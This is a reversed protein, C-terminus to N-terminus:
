TQQNEPTRGARLAAAVISTRLARSLRVLHSQDTNVRGKGANPPVRPPPHRAAAVAVMAATGIADADMPDAGDALAQRHATAHVRNDLHLALRSLGDRIATTRRILHLDIDFASRWSLSVTYRTDDAVLLRFLPRLRILAVASSLRPGLLPLLYGGTVLVSATAVLAPAVRTSLVDWDHGTWRAAVAALKAAGFAINFLWGAALSRLGRRTWGTVQRTWRWSLTATTVAATMHAVLYLTIMERIFPTTAYYTDLDTRREVPAEGAAFLVVLLVIVTSYALLWVHCDRRVRQPPGGRWQVVLILCAASYATVVAYTLPAAANPIGTLQNVAGLTPPAALAFCGGAFLVVACLCRMFPDRRDRWLAPLKAALGVWLACAALYYVASGM